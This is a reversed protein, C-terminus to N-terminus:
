KIMGSKNLFDYIINTIKIQGLSNPHFDTPSMMEHVDINNKISYGGLIDLLPWGYIRKDDIDDVLINNLLSKAINKETWVSKEKKLNYWSNRHSLEFIDQMQIIAYNISKSKCYEQFLIIHTLISDITNDLHELSNTEDFLMSGYTESNLNRSVNGSFCNTFKGYTYRNNGTLGLIVLDVENNEEKIAKIASQIIYRNCAGRYAVNIVEYNNGLKNNLL